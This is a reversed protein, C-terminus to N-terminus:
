PEVGEQKCLAKLIALTPNTRGSSWDKMNNDDMIRYALCDGNDYQVLRYKRWDVMGWLGREPNIEDITRPIFVREPCSLYNVGIFVCGRSQRKCRM